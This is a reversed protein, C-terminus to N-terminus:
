AQVFVGVSAIWGPASAMSWLTAHRVWAYKMAAIEANRHVQRLFDNLLHTDSASIFALVYDPATMGIINGFFLLSTHPDDIRPLVAMAGCYIAATSALVCSAAFLIAWHSHSKHAGYLAALGGLLATNVAVIVAVKIEAAAIWALQRELVWQATLLRERHNPTLPNGQCAITLRRIM